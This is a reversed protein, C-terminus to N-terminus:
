EIWSAFGSPPVDYVVKGSGKVVNGIFYYKQGIQTFHRAIGDVEEPAVILVMGVGMNFVRLMEERDVGGKEFILQFIPLVPWSGLKIRADLSEPLVRPVNDTLGGGTIHAMAHIADREVLPLLPKLYSIHPALLAEGAKGIGPLITQYDH